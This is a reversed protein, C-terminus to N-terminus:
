ECRPDVAVAIVCRADRCVPLGCGCRVQELPCMASCGAARCDPGDLAHIVSTAEGCCGNPVCESDGTCARGADALPPDIFSGCGSVLLCVILARV